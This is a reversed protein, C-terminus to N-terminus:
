GNSMSLFNEIICIASQTGKANGGQEETSAGRSDRIVNLITDLSDHVSGDLRDNLLM